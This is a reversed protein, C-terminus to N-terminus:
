APELQQQAMAPAVVRQLIGRLEAAQAEFGRIRHADPNVWGALDPKRDLLAEIAARLPAPDLGIPILTGNVGERVAEAAGGQNTAIVWKNRSLAERVTLGFSEPWQSPFLLVDVSDFFADSSDRDFPPVMTIQGRASWQVGAYSDLGMKLGHNVLVLEWDARQLSEFTQKILPFGKVAEAGAVFGFRLRKPGRNPAPTAPLAIGNENVIVRDAAFGNALAFRRWHQSPTLLCDAHQLAQRLRLNRLVTRGIDPVCTSCVNMDIRTQGCHRGNERVLFQRECLWWADHLTVVFRIGLAKCAELCGAGLGQMAHFHVVDPRLARLVETFAETVKDDWTVDTWGPRDQVGIRYTTIGGDEESRELAHPKVAGAPASAFVSVRTDNAALLRAMEEMVVTAGGFSQPKFLINVQLVHLRKDLAPKHRDLLPQVQRKAISDPHYRQLVDRRAAEGIRRRLEADGALASLAGYWNADDDALFGTDGDRVAQVFASRPSCVSAVGVSAAELFKIASKAENFNTKPLPAISIDARALLRLYDPYPLASSRRIRDGLRELARPVTLDGVLHLRVAPNELAVRLLAPAVAAFDADHTRTGSGYLIVVEDDAPRRRATQAVTMTETDLANEIVTASGKGVAQMRQALFGTSAVVNGALEIARRYLVAGEFLGRATAADVGLLNPNAAYDDIDFILDDLDFYHPLGLAAVEDFMRLVNDFAPLRYFIVLSHTQMLTLARDTDQWAVATCEWGLAEIMQMKQDVRYKRCQSIALEAIILVRPRLLDAQVPSPAASWRPPWPSAPADAPLAAGGPLRSPEAPKRRLGRMSRMAAIKVARVPATLRWCTSTLLADVRGRAGALQVELEAIRGAADQEVTRLQRLREQSEGDARSREETVQALQARTAAAAATAKTLRQQLTSIREKLAAISAQAAASAAERADIDQRLTAAEQAAAAAQRAAAEAAAHRDAAAAQHAAASAQQAAVAAESEQLRATHEMLAARLTAAEALTAHLQDQIAQLDQARQVATGRSAFLRRVYAQTEPESNLQFLAQVAAPLRRGVGLVGLGYGHVFEFHPYRSRIERWFRWVGFDDRRVNCDHFLVVARESLRPLWTAFDGAVADYTHFGDIHLLDIEGDAFQTAAETFTMRLLTSFRAYRRSNLTAVAHYVGEDYSGAHADGRWTDVAYCRAGLNLRDVAQCLAAYSVGRETGLEVICSPRLAKVIWFAFPVHELWASRALHDPEWDVEDGVDLVGASSAFALSTTSITQFDALDM